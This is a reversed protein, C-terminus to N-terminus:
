LHIIAYSINIKLAEVIQWKTQISTLYTSLTIDGLM